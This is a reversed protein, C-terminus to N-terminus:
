NMEFLKVALSQSPKGANVLVNPFCFEIRLKFTVDMLKEPGTETARRMGAEPARRQRSPRSCSHQHSTACAWLSSLPQALMFDDLLYEYM